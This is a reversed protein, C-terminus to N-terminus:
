KDNDIDIDCDVTLYLMGAYMFMTIPQAHVNFTAGVRQLM